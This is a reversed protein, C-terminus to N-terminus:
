SSGTAQHAVRPSAREEDDAVLHGGFRRADAPAAEGPPMRQLDARGAAARSRTRALVSRASNSRQLRRAAAAPSAMSRRAM